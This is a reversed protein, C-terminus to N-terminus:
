SIKMRGKERERGKRNEERKSGKVRGKGKKGERQWEGEGERLDRKGKGDGERGRGKKGFQNEGVFSSGIGGGRSFFLCSEVGRYKVQSKERQRSGIRELDM